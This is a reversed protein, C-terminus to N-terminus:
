NEFMTNEGRFERQSWILCNERPRNWVCEAVEGPQRLEPETRAGLDSRLWKEPLSRIRCSVREANQGRKKKQEIRVCHKEGQIREAVLDFLDRPSSELRVRCGRGASSGTGRHTGGLDSRLWKRRSVEPGVLYVREANQAEKKRQEIQEVLTKEGQIREAVLDCLDRPSSELRVRCGRRATMAGARHTGGFRVAALERASKPDSM